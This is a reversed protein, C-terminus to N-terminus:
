RPKIKRDSKQIVKKLLDLKFESKEQADQWKISQDHLIILEETNVKSVQLQLLNWTFVWWSLSDFREKNFWRVGDYYNVLLFEQLEIYTLGEAM